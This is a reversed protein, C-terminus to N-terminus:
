LKLILAVTSSTDRNIHLKTILATFFFCQTKSNVDFKGIHIDFRTLQYLNRQMKQHFLLIAVNTKFETVQLISNTIVSFGPFCFIGFFEVLFNNPCITKRLFPSGGVEVLYCHCGEEQRTLM